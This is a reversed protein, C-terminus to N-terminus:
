FTTQLPVSRGSSASTTISELIEVLHVARERDLSSERNSVIAEVMESVGTSWDVDDPAAGTTLLHTEGGYPRHALRCGPDFWSDLRLSGDDGHFEVGEDGLVYFNATLRVRPGSTHNLEVLWYDPSSPSFENGALDTREGLVTSSMARVTSVPGLADMLLALPYVGVDLIPGAAYFPGPNPHWTEIRGHNVEAYAVRVAGLRGSRVWEIATTQSQGLFTFPAACLRVGRDGAIDSLEAAQHFRLALPKESYVHRSRTLAAKTVPYHAEFITLNIMLEAADIAEDLTAFADGGHELAFAASREPSVDYFGVLDVVDAARLDTAYKTAINGCGVIVARIM